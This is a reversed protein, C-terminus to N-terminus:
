GADLWVLHCAVLDAPNAGWGEMTSKASARSGAPQSFLWLKISANLEANQASFYDRQQDIPLQKTTAVLAVLKVFYNSLIDPMESTACARTAAKMAAETQVPNEELAHAIANLQGEYSGLDPQNEQIAVEDAVQPAPAPAEPTSVAMNAIAGDAPPPSPDVAPSDDSFVLDAFETGLAEWDIEIGKAGRQEIRVQGTGSLSFKKKQGFLEPNAMYSAVGLLAIAMLIFRM